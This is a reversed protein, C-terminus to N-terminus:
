KKLATRAKELICRLLRGAEGSKNNGVKEIKWNTDESGVGTCIGIDRFMAM